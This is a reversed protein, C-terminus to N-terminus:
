LHAVYKEPIVRILVQHVLVTQEGYPRETLETGAWAPTQLHAHTSGQELHGLIKILSVLGERDCYIEVQATGVSIKDHNKIEFTLM